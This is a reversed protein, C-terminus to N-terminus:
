VLFMISNSPMLSQTVTSVLFLLIHWLKGVDDVPFYHFFYGNLIIDCTTNAHIYM